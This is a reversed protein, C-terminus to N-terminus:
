IQCKSKGEKAEEQLLRTIQVTIKEYRKICEAYYRENMAISAHRMDNLSLALERELRKLEESYDVM